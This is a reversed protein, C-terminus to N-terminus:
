SAALWPTPLGVIAYRLALGALLVGVASASQMAAIGALRGLLPLVLGIPVVFAPIIVGPWTSLTRPGVSGLSWVFGALAVSELGLAWRDLWEIRELASSPVVLLARVLLVIAATGTSASSALFLASLWTTQAWVPQNTASLLTGTYAGVFFASGAGAVEFIRALWGRRLRTALGSWRGLGFWRDEALVGLFSAFSFAGFAALAWSGISIPSWWKFMPKFTASAVNMHWFREPRDLDVILLVGCVVLLPFALYAAVRTARAAEEDGFLGALTFVAYAGSAIGGLYFYAVILGHWEPSAVYPDM